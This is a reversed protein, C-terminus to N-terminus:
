EQLMKVLKQVNQSDIREESLYNPVLTDVLGSLQASPVTPNNAKLVVLPPEKVFVVVGYIPLNTVGRRAVFEGLSKIDDLVQSTPNLMWPMYEASRNRRLWNPGENLFNGENDLIRFVLIGPPGILVADIYGLGLKSINRIFTYRDDLRQALAEGTKIALNNDLKWTAARLAMGGGILAIAIGAILLIGRMANYFGFGPNSQVVFDIAYMLLAIVAIFVGGLVVVIAFQLLRTSRRALSRTPAFSRM